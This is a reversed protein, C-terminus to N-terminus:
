LLLKDKNVPNPIDSYNEKIEEESLARDFILADSFTTYSPNLISSLNNTPNQGLAVFAVSPKIGGTVSTSVEEIGNIYLKMDKNDYTGVITYWINPKVTTNSLYLM